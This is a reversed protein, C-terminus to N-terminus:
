SSQDSGLEVRWPTIGCIITIGNGLSKWSINHDHTVEFHALDVGIFV